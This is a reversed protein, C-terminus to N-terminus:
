VNVELWDKAKKPIRLNDMRLLSIEKADRFYWNKLHWHKSPPWHDGTQADYFHIGDEKKVWNFIHGSWSRKRSFNIAGRAGVPTDMLFFISNVAEDFTGFHRWDQMRGGYYLTFDGMTKGGLDKACVDWGRQRVEFALTCQTCNRRGEHIVNVLDEDTEWDEIDTPKARLIGSAELDDIQSDPIQEHVVKTPLTPRPLEPTTVRIPRPTVKPLTVTVDIPEKPAKPKKWAKLFTDYDTNMQRAAERRLTAPSLDPNERRLKNVMDRAAQHDIAGPLPCSLDPVARM